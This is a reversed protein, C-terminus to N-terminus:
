QPCSSTATPSCSASRRPRTGLVRHDRGTRSWTRVNRIARAARTPKASLATIHDPAVVIRADGRKLAFDLCPAVVRSDFDEIARLKLDLKSEHSTEDPSRRPRVFDVRELAALAASVKGRTTRISIVPPAPSTCYKLGACVGIGNVLDVAVGRRRRYRLPRPVDADEPVVKAGYGYAAQPRSNVAGAPARAIGPPRRPRDAITGHTNASRAAARGGPVYPAYARDTINHPPECEVATLEDISLDRAKIISLHRYSVGTHLKVPLDAYSENLSTIIKAAEETSIHGSTFSRM